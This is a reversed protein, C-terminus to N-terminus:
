VYTVIALEAYIISTKQIVSNRNKVRKLRYTANPKTILSGNFSHIQSEAHFYIMFMGIFQAHVVTQINVNASM